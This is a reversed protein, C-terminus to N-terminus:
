IKESNQLNDLAARLHLFLSFRFFSFFVSFFFIM